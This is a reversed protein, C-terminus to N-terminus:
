LNHVNFSLVLAGISKDTLSNNNLLLPALWCSLLLLCEHFTGSRKRDHSRSPFLFFLLLRTLQITRGILMKHDILLPIKKITAFLFVPTASKECGSFWGNCCVGCQSISQGNTYNFLSIMHARNTPWSRPLSTLRCNYSLHLDLSFKGCSM